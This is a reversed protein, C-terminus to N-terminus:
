KYIKKLEEYIEAKLDEHERKSVDIEAVKENLKDIDSKLTEIEKELAEDKEPKKTEKEKEREDLKLKKEKIEREIKLRNVKWNKFKKEASIVKEDLKKWVNETALENGIYISGSIGMLTLLEEPIEPFNSTKILELVVIIGTILTFGLIQFKFLNPLGSISVYDSLKPKRPDDRLDGEESKFYKGPIDRWRVIAAAKAALSTGGSIGLLILIQNSLLIFEGRILYVYIYSFITISTWLLIQLLSISYRHLPTETFNLPAKWSKERGEKVLLTILYIVVMTIAVALLGASTQNSVRLKSSNFGKIIGENDIILAAVDVRGKLGDPVTPRFIYFPDEPRKNGLPLKPSFYNKSDMLFYVHLQDNKTDIRDEPIKIKFRKGAPSQTESFEIPNDIQPSIGFKLVAEGKLEGQFKVAIEQTEEFVLRYEGDKKVVEVRKDKVNLEVEIDETLNKLECIRIRAEVGCEADFYFLPGDKCDAAEAKKVLYIPHPYVSKLTIKISEQDYQFLTRRIRDEAKEIDKRLREINAEDKKAREADALDQMLREIEKEKNKLLKLLKKDKIQIYKSVDEDYLFLNIKERFRESRVKIKIERSAYVNTFFSFVILFLLIFRLFGSGFFRRYLFFPAILNGM